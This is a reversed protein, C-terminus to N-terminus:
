QELTGLIGQASADRGLIMKMQSGGTLKLKDAVLSGIAYANGASSGSVTLLTGYGGSGPASCNTGTGASNCQHFYLYGATVMAGGGTLKPSASVSRDQFFLFGRFRRAPDSNQDRYNTLDIGNADTGGCTGLLVLGDSIAPTNPPATAGGPCTIPTSPVGFLTAGSTSYSVVCGSPSPPTVGTCAPANGANGAISITNNGHFFFMAGGTGDGATSPRVTGGAGVKLDGDLYYLGPDFIATSSVSIGGAYYGPAYEKCGTPDPCGNTTFTVTKPNPSSPAAPQAPAAVLAYPDFLPISPAVYRGTGLVVGFPQTSPGGHVTFNAGTNASGAGSLDVCPSSACRPDGATASNSNVKVAYQTGGMITLLSGNSPAYLPPTTDSATPATPHLLVFATKVPAGVLGCMASAKINITSNGMLVKSFFTPVSDTIAVNICPVTSILPPAVCGGTGSNVFTVQVAAGSYGNLSAYKCPVSNP